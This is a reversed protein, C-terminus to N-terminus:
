RRDGRICIEFLDRLIWLAHRTVEALEHHSAMQAGAYITCDGTQCNSYRRGCRCGYGRCRSIQPTEYRGGKIAGSYITGTTACRIPTCICHKAPRSLELRRNTLAALPGKWPAKRRSSLKRHRGRRARSKTVC